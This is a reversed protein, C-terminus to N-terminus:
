EGFASARDEEDKEQQAVIADFAGLDEATLEARLEGEKKEEAEQFAELGETGELTIPQQDLGMAAARDAAFSAITGSRERGAPMPKKPGKRPM